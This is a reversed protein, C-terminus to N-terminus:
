PVEFRLIEGTRVTVTIRTLPTGDPGPTSTTVPAPVARNTVYVAGDPGVTLSTPRTLGTILTSRSEDPQGPHHVRIIAGSNAPNYGCVAPSFYQLVYLNEGTADFAVGNIATFGTVFVTPEEGPQVRYVKAGGAYFPFGTHEGVYYADDPGITISLPVSGAVVGAMACSTVAPPQVLPFSALVSIKGSVGVRLMANASPDVVVLHDPRAVIAYPNSDPHTGRAQERIDCSASGAECPLTEVFAAIDAVYQWEGSAGIHAVQGFGAGLPMPYNAARDSPDDWLGLPVYAGRRAPPGVTLFSIANPGLQANGNQLWLASPFGTAVRQQVGRWLRSIAGTTGCSQQVGRWANVCNVPLAAAPNGDDRLIVPDTDPANGRGAEAVYLAGAEDFAVGRPNDLGCMMVIAAPFAASPACLPNGPISEIQRSQLQTQALILLAPGITVAVAVRARMDVETSEIRPFSLM